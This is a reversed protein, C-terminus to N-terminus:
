RVDDVDGVVLGVEVRQAGRGGADDNGRSRLGLAREGVAGRLGDRVSESRLKDAERAVVAPEKAALEALRALRVRERGSQALDECLVASPLRRSAGASRRGDIPLGPVERM